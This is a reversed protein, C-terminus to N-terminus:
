AEDKSKTSLISSRHSMTLLARYTNDIRKGIANWSHDQANRCCAETYNDRPSNVVRTILEAIKREDLDTAYGNRGQKILGCAANNDHNIVIAPLGCAHAELVSIGFGERISPLVFVKSSKMKSYIRKENKIFGMFCINAQIGLSVVLAELNRREPGDGIILCSIQPNEEALIKIARILVDVNKHALLRGVYIVDSCKVPIRRNMANTEKDDVDILNRSSKSSRADWNLDFGNPITDIREPLVHFLQTLRQTTQPSVSIIRDPLHTSLREILAGIHGAWGLYPIWLEKGWVEHWTVVFPKRKLLSFLKCVFISLIPFQECEILDYTEFALPWILSLTYKISEWISKRGNIYFRGVKYIGKLQIGDVIETPPMKPWQGTLYCIEYGSNTLYRSIEWYRKEAGGKFYPYVRDSIIVIRNKGTHIM